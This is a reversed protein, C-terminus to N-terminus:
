GFVDGVVHYRFFAGVWGKAFQDLGDAYTAKPSVGNPQRMIPTINPVNITGKINRNPFFSNPVHIPPKEAPM